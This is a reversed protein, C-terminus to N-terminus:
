FGEYLFITSGRWMILVALLLAFFVATRVVIRLVERGTIPADPAPAPDPPTM